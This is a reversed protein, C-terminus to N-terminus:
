EKEKADGGGAGTSGGSISTGVDRSVLISGAGGETCLFGGRVPCREAM